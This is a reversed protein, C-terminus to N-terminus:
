AGAEILRKMQEESLKMELAVLLENMQQETSAAILPIVPPTHHRMWALVVQNANVDLEAAVQRIVALRADSDPGIYQEPLPRDARTYAGGLLPSWALLTLPHSALYDFLDGNAFPHTPWDQGLRPRLYTYRQQVCVYDPWGHADSIAHAEALRWARANSSGIFRVKGARVLRHFAELREEVLVDRDDRHAYYLDITEVGLRRLSGECAREIQEARLGMDLGDVPAPAGVKTAIFLHNRHGRERLWDGLLAESEGGQCGDVWRAYANATDIFAGGAATYMDLMRYSTARDDRSGFMMAGLCFESVEVGTDGLPITQM